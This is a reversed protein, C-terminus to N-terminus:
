TQRLEKINSILCFALELSKTRLIFDALWFAESDKINGTSNRRRVPGPLTKM